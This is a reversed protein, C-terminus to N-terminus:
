KRNKRKAKKAAKKKATRKKASFKPKPKPKKPNVMNEGLLKKQYNIDPIAGGPNGMGLEKMMAAAMKDSKELDMEKYCKEEENWEAICQTESVLYKINPNDMKPIDDMTEVSVFDDIKPASVHEKADKFTDELKTTVDRMAEMIGRPDTLDVWSGGTFTKFEGISDEDMYYVGEEGVKPLKEGKPIVKTVYKLNETVEGDDLSDFLDAPLSNLAKIIGLVEADDDEDTRNEIPDRLEGKIDAAPSQKTFKIDDISLPNAKTDEVSVEVETHNTM